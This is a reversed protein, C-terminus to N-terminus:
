VENDDRVSCSAVMFLPSEENEVACCCRTPLNFGVISESVDQSM